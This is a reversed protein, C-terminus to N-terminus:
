YNFYQCVVATIACICSLGILSGGLALIGLKWHAFKAIGHVQNLMEDILNDQGDMLTRFEARFTDKQLKCISSYLLANKIKNHGFWHRLNPTVAILALLLGVIMFGVAMLGLNTAVPFIENDFFGFLKAGQLYAAALITTAVLLVNARQEGLSVVSSVNQRLASVMSLSQQLQMQSNKKGNILNEIKGGIQLVLEVAEANEQTLDQLLNLRTKIWFLTDKIVTDM